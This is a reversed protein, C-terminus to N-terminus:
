ERKTRVQFYPIFGLAWGFEGINPDQSSVAVGINIENLGGERLNGLECGGVLATMTRNTGLAALIHWWAHGQSFVGM